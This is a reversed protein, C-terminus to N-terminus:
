YSQSVGQEHWERLTQAMHHFEDTVADVYDGASSAKTHDDKAHRSIDGVGLHLVTPVENTLKPQLKHGILETAWVTRMCLKNAGVIDKVIDDGVHVWYPGLQPLTDVGGEEEHKDLAEQLALDKLSPHSALHRVAQLYLRADPKSVGVDEANICFSFYKQLQPVKRPDSNGDTIAGIIVPDGNSTKLSALEELCELVNTSFNDPIAKHRADVWLDMAHQAFAKAQDAAYQNHHQLIHQIADKRLQTLLCADSPNEELPAYLSPNARFLDKMVYEVRKPQQIQHRQLHDALADNAASICNSTKWITDDLDFTIIRIQSPARPCSNDPTSSSSMARLAPTARENM